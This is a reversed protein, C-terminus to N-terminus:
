ACPSQPPVGEPSDPARVNRQEYNGIEDIMLKRLSDQLVVGGCLADDFWLCVCLWLGSHTVLFYDLWRPYPLHTPRVRTQRQDEFAFDMRVEEPRLGGETPSAFSDFRLATPRAPLDELYSSRLARDVTVRQGPLFTLMQSLLEVASAPM